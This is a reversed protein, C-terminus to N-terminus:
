FKWFGAEEAQNPSTHPLTPSVSVDPKTVLGHVSVPGDGSPDAGAM